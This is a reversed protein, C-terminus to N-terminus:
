CYYHLPNICHGITGILQSCVVHKVAISGREGWCLWQLSWKMTFSASTKFITKSFVSSKEIAIKFSCTASHWLCITQFVWHKKASSTNSLHTYCMGGGGGGGGGLWGPLANWAQRGSLLPSSKQLICTSPLIPQLSPLSAWCWLSWSWYWQFMVGIIQWPYAYSM